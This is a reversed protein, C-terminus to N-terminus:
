EGAVEVEVGARMLEAIRKGNPLAVEGVYKKALHDYAAAQSTAEVLFTARDLVISGDTIVGQVEYIRTRKEAM